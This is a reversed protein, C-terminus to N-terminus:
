SLVVKLIFHEFAPIYINAMLPFIINSSTIKGDAWGADGFLNGEENITIDSYQGEINAGQQSYMAGLSIGLVNSVGYELEAGATFGARYKYVHDSSSLTSLNVGVKPKVSFKGVSNQAAMTMLLSTFLFSLIIKKM